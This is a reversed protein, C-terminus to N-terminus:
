PTTDPEPDPPTGRPQLHVDGGPCVCGEGPCRGGGGVVTLLCATHIRSSHQRIQKKPATKKQKKKKKKQKKKKKKCKWETFFIDWHRLYPPRFTFLDHSKQSFSREAFRRVSSRVVTTSLQFTFVRLVRNRWKYSSSSPSPLLLYFSGIHDPLVFYTAINSASPSIITTIM